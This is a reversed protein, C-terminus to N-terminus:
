TLDVTYQCTAVLIPMEEGNLTDWTCVCIESFDAVTHYTNWVLVGAAYINPAITQGIEMWAAAFM